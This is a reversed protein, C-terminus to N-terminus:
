VLTVSDTNFTFQKEIICANVSYERVSTLDPDKYAFNIHVEKETYIFFVKTNDPVTM